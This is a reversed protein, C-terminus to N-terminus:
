VEGEVARPFGHAESIIKKLKARGRFLWTMVTGVPVDLAGATEEYSLGNLHYLAIAERQGEPLQGLGQSLLEIEQKSSASDEANPRPDPLTSEDGDSIPARKSKRLRDICLRRAITILWPLLPKEPEFRSKHVFARIFTEQAADEAESAGLYRYCLNFIPKQYRVVISEFARADGKIARKVLDQEAAKERDKHIELAKTRNQMATKL